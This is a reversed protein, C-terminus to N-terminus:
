CLPGCSRARRPIDIPQNQPHSEKLWFRPVCPMSGGLHLVPRSRLSGFDRYPVEGLAVREAAERALGEDYYRLEQFIGLFLYVFGLRLIDACVVKSKRRSNERTKDEKTLLMRIILFVEVCVAIRM